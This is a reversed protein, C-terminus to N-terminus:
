DDSWDEPKYTVKLVRGNAVVLTDEVPHFSIENLVDLGDENSILSYIDNTTGWHL